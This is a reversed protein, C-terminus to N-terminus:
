VHGM